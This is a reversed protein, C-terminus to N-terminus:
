RLSLRTANLLHDIAAIPNNLSSQTIFFPIQISASELSDPVIIIRVVSHALAQLLYQLAEDFQRTRLYDLCRSVLLQAAPHSALPDTPPRNKDSFNGAHKLVQFREQIADALTTGTIRLPEALDLRFEDFLDTLWTTIDSANTLCKVFVGPRLEEDISSMRNFISKLRDTFQSGRSDTAPPFQAILKLYERSWAIYISRDKPLGITLREVQRLSFAAERKLLQNEDDVYWAWANPDLDSIDKTVDHLNVRSQFMFPYAFNGASAILRDMPRGKERLLYVFRKCNYPEGQFFPAYEASGESLGVHSELAGGPLSGSMGRFALINGSARWNTPTWLNPGNDVIQQILSTPDPDM